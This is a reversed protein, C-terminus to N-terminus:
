KSDPKYLQGPGQGHLASWRLLMLGVFLLEGEIFLSAPCLVHTNLFVPKEKRLDLRLFLYSLGRRYLLFEVFFEGLM